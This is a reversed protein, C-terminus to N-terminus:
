ILGKLCNVDTALFPSLCESHLNETEHLPSAPSKYIITHVSLYNDVIRLLLSGGDGPDLLGPCLTVDYM